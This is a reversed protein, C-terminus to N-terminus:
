KVCINKFIEAALIASSLQFEITGTHTNTINASESVRCEYITSPEFMNWFAMKLLLRDKDVGNTLPKLYEAGDCYLFVISCNSFDFGLIRLSELTKTRTSKLTGNLLFSPVVIVSSVRILSARGV